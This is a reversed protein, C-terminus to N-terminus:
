ISHSYLGLRIAPLTISIGVLVLAAISVLIVTAIFLGFDEVSHTPRSIMWVALVLGMIGLAPLMWQFRIVLETFAPLGHGELAESFLQQHWGVWGWLALSVLLGSLGTLATAIKLKM